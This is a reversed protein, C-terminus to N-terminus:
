IFTRSVSVEPTPIGESRRPLPEPKNPTPANEPTKSDAKNAPANNNAAIKILNALMEKQVTLSERLIGNTDVAIKTM